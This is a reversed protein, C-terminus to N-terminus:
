EAALDQRGHLEGDAEMTRNRGTSKAAYLSRDASKMLVAIGAMSLTAEAVGISITIPVLRGDIIL